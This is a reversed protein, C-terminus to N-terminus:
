LVRKEENKLHTSNFNGTHHTMNHWTATILVSLIAKHSFVPSKKQRIVAQCRMDVNRIRSDQALLFLDNGDSASGCKRQIFRSQMDDVKGIRIGGGAEDVAMDVSSAAVVRPFGQFRVRVDADEATMERRVADRGVERREYAIRSLLHDCQRCLQGFQRFFAVGACIRVGDIQFTREDIDPFAAGLIRFCNGRNVEAICPFQDRCAASSDFKEGEGGFQLVRVFEDFKQQFVTHNRGHSVAHGSRVIDQARHVGSRASARMEVVSKRRKMVPNGGDRVDHQRVVVDGHLQDHVAHVDVRAHHVDRRADLRVVFDDADAVGDFKLVGSIRGEDFFLVPKDVGAGADDCSGGHCQFRSPGM